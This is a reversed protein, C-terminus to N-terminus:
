KFSSPILSKMNHEVLYKHLAVTSRLTKWPEWTIEAEGNNVPMWQVQFTLTSTRKKNGKHALIKDINYYQHDANAVYRPDTYRADYYYPKMSKVHVIETKNTSLDMLTYHDNDRGVVQLPGRLNTM